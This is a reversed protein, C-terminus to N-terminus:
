GLATELVPKEREVPPPEFGDDDPDGNIIYRTDMPSPLHGTVTPPRAVKRVFLSFWVHDSSGSPIWKTLGPAWPPNIYREPRRPLCLTLEAHIMGSDQDMYSCLRFGCNAYM